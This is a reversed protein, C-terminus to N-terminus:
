QQKQAKQAEEKIKFTPKARKRGRFIWFKLGFRKALVFRINGISFDESETPSASGIGEDQFQNYTTKRTEESEIQKEFEAVNKKKRSHVIQFGDHSNDLM